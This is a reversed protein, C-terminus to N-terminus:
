IQAGLGRLATAFAGYQEKPLQPMAEVGYQKLLAQLQPQMGKDMLGMAASALDDLTYERATTSVQTVAPVAPDQPQVVPAMPISEVVPVHKVPAPKVPVPQVAPAAEHAPGEPAAQPYAELGKLLGALSGNEITEQLELSNMEITFKM